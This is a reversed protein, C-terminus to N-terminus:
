SLTVKKLMESIAAYAKIKPTMEYRTKFENYLLKLTQKEPFIVPFVEDIIKENSLIKRWENNSLNKIEEFSEQPSIDFNFEPFEPLNDRWKILNQELEDWVQPINMLEFLEKGYCLNCKISYDDEINKLESHYYNKNKNLSPDIFYFFAEIDKDPNRKIIQELKKEFNDIQGRKKTSDHDDRVKQEIFYIKNDKQVYQDINYECDECVMRKDLIEYGCNSLYVEIIKEMADGFKIEHSQTINQIIKIKPKTPRFIGVYRDPYQALKQLLSLKSDEFIKKNFIKTFEENEIIM